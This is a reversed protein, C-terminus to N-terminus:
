SEGCPTQPRETTGELPLGNGKTRVHLIDGWTIPNGLSIKLKKARKQFWVVEDPTLPVTSTSKHITVPIDSWGLEQAITPRTNDFGVHTGDPLEVVDVPPKSHDWGTEMSPRIKGYRGGTGAKTQSFRWGDLPLTAVLGFPDFSALPDRTYSYTQIGASTGAPDASIYIQETPDYYRFRNYYLGTEPDESQGPLRFPCLGREGQVQQVQGYTDLEVSWIENGRDGVVLAPTGLHDPVISSGRYEKTSLRALPTFTEPEFLWTLVETPPGLAPHATRRIPEEPSAVPHADPPPLPTPDPCATDQNWEHLPVNGDWLWRTRLGRFEKSIRRGLADYAFRVSNGDPRVVEALMGSANWRYHWTAGDPETKNILNGEADYDYTTGESELLQGAPGYRRDSRDPRRFLNGVADPLRLEVRGDAHTASVLYGREDHVYEIPGRVLDDVRRLRLGPDWIYGRRHLLHPAHGPLVAGDLGPRPARTVTHEVPRGLTDRRWTSRVGGPLQRDIELGALDRTFDASWGDTEVRTVDGMVDRAIVQRAGLSSRLSARLGDPGYTTAIWHDGQWERTVRGLLDRELRVVVEAGDPEVHVAAITEGDARYTFRDGSRDSHDITTIRGTADHTFRTRLGSARLVERVRGALDRTYLRRIGDFGYEAAVEGTPDLDFRYVEAHENTIARLRGETDYRFGVTTGAESRTALRHMGTYTMALDRQRDRVRVLNGDRDHELSREDGDPEYVAVLRDHLDYTSQQVNGMVDISEVLRGRRDHRWRQVGGNPLDVRVLNGAPDYTLRLEAGTPDVVVLPFRDGHCYRTTRGLSDTRAVLRRRDDYQWSWRGGLGDLAAVPLDRDDHQVEVTAGDPDVVRCCNGRADYTRRTAHGLPDVEATVRLYADYEYRTVGGRADTLEVVAGREDARYVTTEGCSNTVVTTRRAEDYVLRHDYIGGDGWTHVCRAEAGWGDYEFYFSLGGRLTERTMKHNAYAHRLAHNDADLVAVLDGDDYQYRTHTVLGEHEPHPLLIQVLRSHGDHVLHVRRGASDHIWELRARDDYQLRVEHGAPNGIRVLRALAPDGGRIPAFDLDLGDPGSIRWQRAGLGRLTLRNLPEFVSIERQEGDDTPDRGPDLPFEIERGDGARLVLQDSELWVAQDYTHSWGHGLVSARASWASDYNREFRLPIPGPLEFDVADTLLRGAVVDVPHGTVFCAAKHLLTRLRSKNPMKNNIWNHIKDSLGKNRIKQKLKGLLKFLGGLVAMWPPMPFGGVLVNPHGLMVAGFCPPAGPDKGMLLSAALAAADAIAQAAQTAAGLSQGAAMAAMSASQAASEAAQLAAAQAEVQAEAAAEAQKQAVAQAAEMAAGDGAAAAADATAAAASSAAGASAANASAAVSATTQAASDLAADSAAKKSEDAAGLTQAVGAGSVALSLAGMALAGIPLRTSGVSPQCHKTIDFMRAARGGGFFVKSSGTFVEFPPALSGCTIAIGLDGARAAPVGNVHVSQCGGILLVGLSPLPLPMAPPHTHVHPIGLHPCLMTAAPFSPLLKALGATAMALGTNALDGPLSLLGMTGTVLRTATQVVTEGPPPAEFPAMATDVVSKMADATIADTITADIVGRMADGVASSQRTGTPGAAAQAAHGARQLGTTVSTM